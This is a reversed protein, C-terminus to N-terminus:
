VPRDGLAGCLRDSDLEGVVRAVVGLHAGEGVWDSAVVGLHDGGRWGLGLLLAM